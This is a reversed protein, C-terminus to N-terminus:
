HHNILITCSHFLSSDNVIGITALTNIVMWILGSTFSSKQTPEEGRTEKPLLEHKEHSVASELDDSLRQKEEDNSPHNFRAIRPNLSSLSLASPVEKRDSM